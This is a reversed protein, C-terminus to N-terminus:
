PQKAEAQVGGQVPPPPRLKSVDKQLGAAWTLSATVPDYVGGKVFFRQYQHLGVVSVVSLLLALIITPSFRQFKESLSVLQSFALWCLPIEWYAAFRLSMGYTVCSMFVFSLGLFVAMFLERSDTRRLQFLRGIGLLTVVPTVMIFDIVYRYWPGDQAAICYLNTISKTEFTLYFRLFEGLGGIMAALFLVAIAPGLATTLFLAFTPQGLPLWRCCVFLAVLAVVVFAGSEKTLILITLCSAYAVLWPLQHPRQLNEWALWVAAVAWFAFYGDILARQSLYIQLPSYAILATLGIMPISGGLRYAFVACLGLMLISAAAAISRLAAFNGFHFQEAVLYAPLLFGIRTAPVLAVPKNYQREVFVRVVSDYNMMGATKIHTLFVMYGHEDVGLGTFGASTRVRLLIGSAIIFIMALTLWLQRRRFFGRPPHDIISIRVASRTFSLYRPPPGGTELGKPVALQM